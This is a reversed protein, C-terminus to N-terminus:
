TYKVFGNESAAKFVGMFEKYKKLFNENGESKASELSNEFDVYLKKCIEACVFGECDSFAIMEIFPSGDGYEGEYVRGIHPNRHFYSKNEYDDDGFEPKPIEKKEYGAVKALWERFHSYGIYGIGVHCGTEEASYYSGEALNGAQHPFYGQYIQHLDDVERVKPDSVEKINKYAYVDLGM